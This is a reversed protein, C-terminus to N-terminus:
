YVLRGNCDRITKLTADSLLRRGKLIKPLGIICAVLGKIFDIVLLNKISIVLLFGWWLVLYSVVYRWPLHRAALLVRNRANSYVWRGRPRETATIRHLIVIDAAWTIKYGRDIARWSLDTEECSYFFGEFFAGIENILDQRLAFGQGSFYSTHYDTKFIKKDRRPIAAIDPEGTSAIYSNTALIGLEPDKEFRRRIRSLAYHDVFSADDDLFVLIDGTAAEIGINRGRSVGQNSNLEIVIAEPWSERVMAPSGDNSGNDVVIFEFDTDQEKLSSLTM